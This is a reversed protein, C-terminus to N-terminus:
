ESTKEKEKKKEDPINFIIENNESVWYDRRALKAIYEDDNLKVIEEKLASQDKKLESLEQKLKSKEEEKEELSSAQSILTSIMFYSAVFAIVSFFCLRRILRKRKNAAFIEDLEHQHTLDTKIKAVNRKIASM